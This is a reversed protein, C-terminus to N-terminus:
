IEDVKKILKRRTFEDHLFRSMDSSSYRESVYFTKNDIKSIVWDGVEVTETVPVEVLASIVYSVIDTLESSSMGKVPFDKVLNKLNVSTEESTEKTNQPCTCYARGRTSCKDHGRYRNNPPGM